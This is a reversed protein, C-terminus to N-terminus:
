ETHNLQASCYKCYLADTEHGERSCAPCSQTSIERPRNTRVMEMAFIGTPIIILSYGLIMGMAAVAQGIFTQPSIDGYGVTTITVIAWYMGRPISTFGNGEGEIVYMSAGMILALTLVTFLFVAIKTRTAHLARTLAKLEGLYRAMKLVRFVRLLRLARIVLLSQTGTVFFSLYSPLIALLDVLGYFSFVYRWPQRISVLRLLYEVTFLGTFVWEATRLETGYRTRIDAMSEFVVAAVSLLILVLITIDFLKGVLTDAEFIIEHIRWRWEAQFKNHKINKM